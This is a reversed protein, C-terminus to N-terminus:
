DANQMVENWKRKAEAKTRGTAGAGCRKCRYTYLDASQWLERRNCGCKCTVFRVYPKYVSAKVTPTNDIAKEFLKYRFWSECDWRQMEKLAERYMSRKLADADILRM